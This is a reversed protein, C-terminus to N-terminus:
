RHLVYQKTRHVTQGHKDERNKVSLGCRGNGVEEGVCVRMESVRRLWVVCERGSGVQDPMM